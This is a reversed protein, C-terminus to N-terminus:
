FRFGMSMGFSTATNDEFKSTGLPGDSIDAGGVWTQQLGARVVVGGDFEYSGGIALSRMGDTPSLRSPEGGQAEEYGVSGFVSFNDNIRRGLGLSYSWTDNSFSTIEGGVNAAYQETEIAWQSWETWRASGFLLTDAAIGTQFDITLSQPMKVNTKTTGSQVPITVGTVTTQNAVEDVDFDHEIESRYTVAVRAAIDPIEYAAGIVYGLDTEQSGNATYDAAFTNGNSAAAAAVLHLPISIDATSTVARLGGYVSANDNLQYKLVAEYSTSRWKGTLDEQGQIAALAPTATLAALTAGGQRSYLGQTYNSNAGYPNLLFFGFSLRENIDMKVAINIQHENGAMNESDRNIGLASVGAGHQGSVSANTGSFGFQIYNGDEFLVSYAPQARDLGAASAAGAGMLLATSALLLKKM